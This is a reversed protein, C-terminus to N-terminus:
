EGLDPREGPGAVPRAIERDGPHREGADRAAHPEALVSHDQERCAWGTVADIRWSSRATLHRLPACCPVHPRAQYRTGADSRLLGMCACKSESRRAEASIEAIETRAVAPQEPPPVPTSASSARVHM